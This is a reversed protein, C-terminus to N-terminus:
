VNTKETKLIETITLGLQGEDLVVVEGKAVIKNNVLIDIPEGVRRDLEIIAGRGIKLLHGISVKAKGLVAAVTVPIEKISSLEEFNERGIQMQENNIKNNIRTNNANNNPNTNTNNSNNNGTNATTNTTNEVDDIM